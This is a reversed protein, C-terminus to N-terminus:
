EDRYKAMQRELENLEDPEDMDSHMVPAESGFACYVQQWEKMTSRPISLTRAVVDDGWGFCFPKIARRRAEIDHKVRLDARM